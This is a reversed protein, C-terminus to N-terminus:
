RVEHVFSPPMLIRRKDMDAQEDYIPQKGCARVAEALEYHDCSFATFRLHPAMCALKERRIRKDPETMLKERLHDHDQILTALFAVMDVDEIELLPRSLAYNEIKRREDETM